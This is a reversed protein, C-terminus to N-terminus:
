LFKQNVESKLREEQEEILRRIEDFMRGIGVNVTPDGLHKQLNKLRQEITLTLMDAKRIM